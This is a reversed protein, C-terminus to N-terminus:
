SWSQLFAAKQAECKGMRGNSYTDQAKKDEEPDVATESWHSPLILHSHLDAITHLHSIWDDM